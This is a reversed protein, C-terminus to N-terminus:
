AAGIASDVSPYVALGRAGPLRGIRRRAALREDVLRVECSREPTGYLADRVAVLAAETPFLYTLDVVMQGKVCGALAVLLTRFANGGVEAEPTVVLRGSRRRLVVDATPRGPGHTTVAASSLSTPLASPRAM